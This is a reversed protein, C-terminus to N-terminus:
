NLDFQYIGELGADLFLHGDGAFLRVTGGEGTVNIIVHENALMRTFEKPLYTLEMPQFGYFREANDVNHVTRFVADTIVVRGTFVVSNKEIVLKQGKVSEPHIFFSSWVPVYVGKCKYEGILSEPSIDIDRSEKTALIVRYSCRGTELKGLDAKTITFLFINNAPQEIDKAGISRLWSIEEALIEDNIKDLKARIEAWRKDVGEHDNEHARVFSFYEDTLEDINKGDFKQGSIEPYGEKMDYAILMIRLKTGNSYKSFDTMYETKGSPSGSLAVTYDMHDAYAITGLNFYFLGAVVCLAAAAALWKKRSAAKNSGAVSAPAAPTEAGGSFAAAEDIYKDSILSLTKSVNEKNM